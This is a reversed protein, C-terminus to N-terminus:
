HAELAVKSAEFSFGMALMRPPTCIRVPQFHWDSNMSEPQRQPKERANGILSRSLVIFILTEVVHKKAEWRALVLGCRLTCDRGCALFLSRRKLDLGLLGNGVVSSRSLHQEMAQDPSAKAFKKQWLLSSCSTFALKLLFKRLPSLSEIAMSVQRASQMCFMSKELGVQSM